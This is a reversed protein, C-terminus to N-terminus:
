DRNRGAMIILIRLLAVFLNLFDLYLQVTAMIYEDNRYKHMINSMDYATFGLFIFVSLVSIGLGLGTGGVFFNLIGALIIVILGTILFPGLGSMDKGTAMVYGAMAFFGLSTMGLAQVVIMPDIAKALAVLPGILMGNLFAYGYFLVVNLGSTHRNWLLVFYLILNLIALGILFGPPVARWFSTGIATLILGGGFYPLVRSMFNAQTMGTWEGTSTVRVEDPNQTRMYDGFAM